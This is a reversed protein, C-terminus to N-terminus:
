TESQTEDETASTIDTPNSSNLRAIIAALAKLFPQAEILLDEREVSPDSDRIVTGSM